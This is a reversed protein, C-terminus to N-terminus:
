SIAGIIESQGIGHSHLIQMADDMGKTWQRLRGAEFLNEKMQPWHEKGLTKVVHRDSDIPILTEDFDFIILAPQAAM